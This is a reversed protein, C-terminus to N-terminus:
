KEAVIEISINKSVRPLTGLKGPLRPNLVIEASSFGPILSLYDRALHPYKGSIKSAIEETKIEPLLNAIFTVEVEWLNDKQGKLSFATDIQEDRLVYGSPVRDKLITQALSNLEKKSVVLGFISLQMTLKLTTTEDGVKHSFDKKSTDTKVAEDIFIEGELLGNRIQTKGKELLEKKLEDELSKQDATAVVSIEKSTGGSFDEESVADVESKPYNSVSFSEGKALNYEAGIDEATVEVLATGPSTPSSAASVSAASDLSFKLDNPGVITTGGAINITSSTGNRIQVKGKAKEGVTKSGTVSTTKEGEPTYQVIKGTLVKQSYDSLERKPDFTVTQVDELKKSNIYITVTAKPFFWWIMFGAISFLLLFVGGFVFPKKGIEFSPFRFQPFRVFRGRLKSTFLSTVLPKQRESIPPQLPPEQSPTERVSLPLEQIDRGIVFGSGETVEKLEEDFAEKKEPLEEPLKQLPKVGSVEQFTEVLDYGTVKGIESAGALSVAILKEKADIVEVKPTHLLKIKDSVAEWDATVIAQRAEELDKEKGNYIIFRSPIQDPIKLGVLGEVVDDFLSVSRVVTVTGVLNGLKFLGVDISGESVGVVVATLPVQEDQKKYFAIAEPLVVFGVPDLSLKSCIKKVKTLYEEKIKGDGIWSPSFGLITKSPEKAGEPLAVIISSLSADVVEVLESDTEWHSAQSISFIKARNDEGISWLSSQVWGPEITLSWYYEQKM